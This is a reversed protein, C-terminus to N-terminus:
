KILVSVLERRVFRCKSVPSRGMAAVAVNYSGPEQTRAFKASMIGTQASAALTTAATAAEATTAGSPEGSPGSLSEESASPGFPLVGVPVLDELALESLRARAVDKLPLESVVQAFIDAKKERLLKRRLALLKGIDPPIKDGGAVRLPRTKALQARHKKLLTRVGLAPGTIKANARFGSIPEKGDFVQAAIIV